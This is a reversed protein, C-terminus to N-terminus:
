SQDAPAGDPAPPKRRRGPSGPIYNQEYQDAGPAEEAPNSIAANRALREREKEIMMRAEDDLPEMDITPWRVRYPTGDGVVTGSGEGADNDRDGPVLCRQTGDQTELEHAILLRYKAM